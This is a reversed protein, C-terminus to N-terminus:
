DSLGFVTELDFPNSSTFLDRFYEVAINGKAGESFHEQGMEDLLMLIRNQIRRGKVCNHFYKTNRDGARLWEEHCKQRWFLEEERLAEALEIKLKKMFEFSPSRKSVEKELSAKLRSIKDRSNLDSSRKWGMINRRCRRIRDITNGREGTKGEWSLRVMDEFGERSLMRKDFLFRGKTPNDRELSFCVRIPRHDSAWLELYEMNSRPFLSFWNSFSRDLRCQVWDDERKGCWSLCNGSYRLEKIKCNQVM